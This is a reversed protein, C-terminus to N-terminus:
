PRRLKKALADLNGRLNPERSARLVMEVAQDELYAKLAKRIADAKNAAIGQEVLKELAILLEAPLPVSITTM